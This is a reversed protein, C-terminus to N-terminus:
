IKSQGARCLLAYSMDNLACRALPVSLILTYKLMDTSFFFFMWTFASSKCLVLAVFLFGSVRFILQNDLSNASNLWNVAIPKCSLTKQEAVMQKDVVVFWQTRIKYITGTVSSYDIAFNWMAAFMFACSPRVILRKGELIQSNQM